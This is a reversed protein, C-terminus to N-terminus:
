KGTLRQILKKASAASDPLVTLFLLFGVLYYTTKSFEFRLINDGALRPAYEYHPAQQGFGDFVTIREALDSEINKLYIYFTISEGPVLKEFKYDRVDPNLRIQGPRDAPEMWAAILEDHDSFPIRVLVDTASKTGENQIILGLIKPPAGFIVRAAISKQENDTKEVGVAYAVMEHTAYIIDPQLLYTRITIAAAVIAGIAATARLWFLASKPNFWKTNAM